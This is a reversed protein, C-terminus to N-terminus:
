VEEDPINHGCGIQGCSHCYEREKLQTLDDPDVAHRKDDGVMVVLLRGTREEYGSWETDEDPETEWGDVWFAVDRWGRVTYRGEYETAPEVHKFTRPM